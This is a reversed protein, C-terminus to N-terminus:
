KALAESKISHISLTSALLAISLIIGVFEYLRYSANSEWFVLMNAATQLASPNWEVILGITAGFAIFTIIRVYNSGFGM